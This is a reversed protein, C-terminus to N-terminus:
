VSPNQSHSHTPTGLDSGLDEQGSASMKTALDRAIRLYQWGQVAALLTGGWAIVCTLTSGVRTTGILIFCSLIVLLGTLLKRRADSILQRISHTEVVARAHCIALERMAAIMEPQERPLKRPSTERSTDKRLHDMAPGQGSLRDAETPRGQSTSIVEGQLDESQHEGMDSNQVDAVAAQVRGLLSQVYEQIVRQHDENEAVSSSREAVSTPALEDPQLNDANLSCSM